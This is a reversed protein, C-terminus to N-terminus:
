LNSRPSPRPNKPGRLKANEQVLEIVARRERRLAARLDQVDQESRKLDDECHQLERELATREQSSFEVHKLKSLLSASQQHQLDHIRTRYFKLLSPTLEIHDVDDM